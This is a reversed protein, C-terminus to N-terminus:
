EKWVLTKLQDSMWVERESKENQFIFCALIHPNEEVIKKSEELGLVMFATAYADAEMCTPAYVSASLIDQQVPYGTKPSITHSYKKGDVMYFRRYNGSTALAGEKLALIMQLERHTANEDDLPKDIGIHWPRKKDSEGKVRIEGGIEIMYNQIGKRDFFAAVLDVGQGKAISSADMQIGEVGKVIRNGELTVKEMGVYQLLSDVKETSPLKENKFGFGWANVLPAVTIDFAGGTVQYIGRAKAYMQIFLSDVTDSEGRNWKSIVSNKNFMSLSQNVLEMEQRIDTAYNVESQYSIHYTTGYVGGETYQYINRQCGVGLLLMCIILGVKEMGIM